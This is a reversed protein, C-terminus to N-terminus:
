RLNLKAATACGRVPFIIHLWVRILIITISILTINEDSIAIVAFSHIFSIM